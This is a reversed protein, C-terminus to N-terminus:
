PKLLKKPPSNCGGVLQPSKVLGLGNEKKKGKMVKDLKSGLFSDLGDVVAAKQKGFISAELDACGMSSGLGLEVWRLMSEVKEKMDLLVGQMALLSFGEMDGTLGGKSFWGGDKPIHFSQLDPQVVEGGAVGFADQQGKSSGHAM